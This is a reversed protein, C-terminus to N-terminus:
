IHFTISDRLLGGNNSLLFRAGILTVNTELTESILNGDM